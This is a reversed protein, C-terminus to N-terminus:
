NRDWLVLSDKCLAFRKQLVVFKLRVTLLLVVRSSFTFLSAQRAKRLFTRAAALVPKLSKVNKAVRCVKTKCNVVFSDRALIYPRM